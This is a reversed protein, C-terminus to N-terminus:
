RENRVKSCEPCLDIWGEQLRLDQGMKTRWSEASKYDLVDEVSEFPGVEEGCVDCVLVFKSYERDMMKCERRQKKGVIGM